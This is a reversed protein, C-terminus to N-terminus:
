NHEATPRATLRRMAGQRREAGQKTAFTKRHRHGQEYEWDAYFKGYKRLM